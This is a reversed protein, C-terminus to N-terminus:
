AKIRQRPADAPDVVLRDLVGRLGNVQARQFGENVMRAKCEGQSVQEGALVVLSHRVRTFRDLAIAVKHKGIADESEAASAETLVFFGSVGDTPQNAYGWAKADCGQAPNPKGVRCAKLGFESPQPSRTQGLSAKRGIRVLESATRARGAAPRPLSFTRDSPCACCM